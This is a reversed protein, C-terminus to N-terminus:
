IKKLNRNEHWTKVVNQFQDTQEIVYVVCGSYNQWKWNYEKQPFFYTLLM